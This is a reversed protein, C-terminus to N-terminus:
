DVFPTFQRSCGSGPHRKAGAGTWGVLFLEPLEGPETLYWSSYALASVRVRSRKDVFDKDMECVQVAHLVRWIKPIHRKEYLTDNGQRQLAFGLCPHHQEYRTVLQLVTSVSQLGSVVLIAMRLMTDKKTIAPMTAATPDSLLHRLLGMRLSHPAIVFMYLAFLLLDTSFLSSGLFGWWMWTPLRFFTRTGEIDLQVILSLGFLFFARQRKRELPWLTEWSGQQLIKAIAAAYNPAESLSRVVSYGTALRVMSAVAGFALNKQETNPLSGGVPIYLWEEEYVKTIKVGMTNLRSM